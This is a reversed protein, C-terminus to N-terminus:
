TQTIPSYKERKMVNERESEGRREREKERERGREGEGGWRRQKDDTSMRAHRMVWIM